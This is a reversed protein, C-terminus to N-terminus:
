KQKRKIWVMENRVIEAFQNLTRQTEGRANPHCCSLRPIKDYVILHEKRMMLITKIIALRSQTGLTLILSPKSTSLVNWIHDYCPPIKERSHYVPRWNTNDWHIEWYLDGFAKLLRKGSMTQSLILRHFEQDDRYQRVFKRPTGPKFWPNQLFTVIM